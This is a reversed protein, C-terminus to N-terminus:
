PRSPTERLAEEAADAAAETSIATTQQSNQQPLIPNVDDALRWLPPHFPTSWKPLTAGVFEYPVLSQGLAVVAPSHGVPVMFGYPELARCVTPVCQGRTPRIVM